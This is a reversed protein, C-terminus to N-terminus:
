SLPNKFSDTISELTVLTESIEEPKNTPFTRAVQAWVEPKEDLCKGCQYKSDQLIVNKKLKVM